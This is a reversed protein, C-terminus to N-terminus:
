FKFKMNFINIRNSVSALLNPYDNLGKTPKFVEIINQKFYYKELPETEQTYTNLRNKIIIETDDQRSILKGGCDDCCNQKNKPLIPEMLYEGEEIGCVNYGKSCNQCIRRGLLKRILINENLEIKIVLNISQYVKEFLQAQNINRPFGDLIVGKSYKSQNLKLEILRLMYEDNLFKGQNLENKIELITGENDHENSKVINRLEEGSSLVEINLDKSLLKSYTGKGVGPPGIMLMIFKKNLNSKNM